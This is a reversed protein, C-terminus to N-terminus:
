YVRTWGTPGWLLIVIRVGSRRIEDLAPRRAEFQRSDWRDTLMLLADTQSCFVALHEVVGVLVEALRDGKLCVALARDCCGGHAEEPPVLNVGIAGGEERLRKRLSKGTPPKASPSSLDEGIRAAEDLLGGLAEATEEDFQVALLTRGSPEDEGTAHHFEVM